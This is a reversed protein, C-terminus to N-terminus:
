CLEEMMESVRVIREFKTEPMVNDSVGLIFSDGPSVTEFLDEMYDEFREDSFPECLIVSPIGGWIIVDDGWAERAQALTCNVMPATAFVEAMDFGSERVLDLLQGTDADAHCVLIKGKSHLLEAFEQFYSKFYEEFFPPPTMMSDFHIGHLIMKAPSEAAIKQIERAHDTLVRLLREIKAPRDIMEFIAKEYGLYERMLQHMPCHGLGVMPLGDDGTEQDYSIYQDYAPTVKTHEVIYEVVDYDEPRKILHESQYSDMGAKQLKEVVIHRTSVTGVPTIYETFVEDGHRSVRTKVNETRTSLIEADRAPTGMGLDREIDRLSWERYRPPLTNMSKHYKYWIQLRPIWPIRDAKRKEIVALMRERNTM